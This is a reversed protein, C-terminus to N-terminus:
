IYGTIEFSCLACPAKVQLTTMAKELKRLADNVPSSAAEEAAAASLAAQAATARATAEEVAKEAAAVAESQASVAITASEIADSLEARM